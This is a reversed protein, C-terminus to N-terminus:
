CGAAFSQVFDLYDFFDVVSDANFDAAPASAAFASVFDLYDFFDAVSDRNFDAPCGCYVARTWLPSSILSGNALGGANASDQAVSGTGEDLQYLTLLGSENGTLREKMARTIEMASRPFSWIRVDDIQGQFLANPTTDTTGAGIRLTTSLNPAYRSGTNTAVTAGNVLFSTVGSQTNYTM